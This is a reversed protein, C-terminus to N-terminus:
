DARTKNAGLWRLAEEMDRFIATEISSQESFAQFVRTMGFTVDKSIVVATKSPGIKNRYEIMLGAIRKVDASFTDMESNRLDAIGNLGPKFDPNNLLSELSEVIEDTNTRGDITTYVIGSEKDIRFTIPM